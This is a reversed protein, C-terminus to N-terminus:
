SGNKEEELTYIFLLNQQNETVILPNGLHDKLDYNVELVEDNVELIEKTM